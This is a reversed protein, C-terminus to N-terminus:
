KKLITNIQNGLTKRAACLREGTTLLPPLERNRLMTKKCRSKEDCLVPELCHAKSTAARPSLLQPEGAGSFAPKQLQPVHSRGLGPILDGDEGSAPPNKDM